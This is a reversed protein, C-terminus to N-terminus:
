GEDPASRRGDPSRGRTGVIVVLEPATELRVEELATAGAAALWARLQSAEYLDGADTYVAM